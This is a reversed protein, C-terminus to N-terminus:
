KFPSASIIDILDDIYANAQHKSPQTDTAHAFENRKRLHLSLNDYINGNIFPPQVDTCIELVIAEGPARKGAFFDEYDVIDHYLRSGGRNTYTALQLNFAQLRAPDNFIWRRIFDYALQWGIVIAARNAGCEICLVAEELLHKQTPDLKGRQTGLARLKHSVGEIDLTKFRRKQVQRDSTELIGSAVTALDMAHAAPMIANATQATLRNLADLRKRLEEEPFPLDLEKLLRSAWGIQGEVQTIPCGTTSTLARLTAGLHLYLALGEITAM